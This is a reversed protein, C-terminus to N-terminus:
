RVLLFDDFLFEADKTIEGEGCDNGCCQGKSCCPCGRVRFAACTSLRRGRRALLFIRLEAEIEALVHVVTVIAAVAV